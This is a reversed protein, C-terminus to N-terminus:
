RAQPRVAAFPLPTGCGWERASMSSADLDREIRGTTGVTVPLFWELRTDALMASYLLYNGAPVDAFTFRGDASPTAHRIGFRAFLRIHQTRITDLMTNVVRELGSELAEAAKADKAGQMRRELANMRDAGMTDQAACLSDFANKLPVPHPLLHVVAAPGRVTSDKPLILRGTITGRTGASASVPVPLTTCDPSDHHEDVECVVPAFKGRVRLAFSSRTTKLQEITLVQGWRSLMFQRARTADHTSDADGDGNIAGIHTIAFGELARDLVQQQMEATVEVRPRPEAAPRAAFAGEIHLSVM